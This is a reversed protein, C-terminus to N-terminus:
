KSNGTDYSKEGKIIAKGDKLEYVKHCYQTSDLDHTVMVISTKYEKTLLHLLEIVEQTNKKDLNGTPEDAFIIKPSNVMARIIAVRQKEGGSLLGVKTNIKGELGLRQCLEFPFDVKKSDGILQPLIINDYVSLGDILNYNQFIFGMEENRIYSLKSDNLSNLKVGDLYIDGSDPFLLAGMLYLLTSKGSGSVGTIANFSGEEIELDLNDIVTFPTGDPNYFSKSVKELKLLM